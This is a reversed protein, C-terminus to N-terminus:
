PTPPELQFSELFRTRLQEEQPTSEGTSAFGVVYLVEGRDFVIAELRSAPTGGSAQVRVADGGAYTIARRDLIARGRVVATIVSQYLAPRNIALQRALGPIRSAEVSLGQGGFMRVLTVSTGGGDLRSATRVPVSPFAVSFGEERALHWPPEYPAGPGKSPLRAVQFGARRFLDVLGGAGVMHGAGVAVLVTRGSAPQRGLAEFMRRNRQLFVRDFAAEAGPFEFERMTRDVGEADGALYKRILGTLDAGGTVKELTRGLSARQEEDSGDALLEVQLDASELSRIPKRAAVALSRVQRDVSYEDRLVGLDSPRQLASGLLTLQLLWPRMRDVRDRDLKFLRCAETLKAREAESLQAGLSAGEPLMGRALVLGHLRQEEAPTLNVEVAVESSAWVAEEVARDLRYDAPAMHVTGLLRGCSPHAGRTPRPM